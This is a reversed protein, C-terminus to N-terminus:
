NCGRGGSRKNRVCARFLPFGQRGSTQANVVVEDASAGHRQEKVVENLAFDAKQYELLTMPFTMGERKLKLHLLFEEAREGGRAIRAAARFCWCPQPRWVELDVNHSLM